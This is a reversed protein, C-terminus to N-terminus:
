SVRPLSFSPQRTRGFAAVLLVLCRCHHGRLYLVVAVRYVWLHLWLHYKPMPFPPFSQLVQPCIQYAAVWPFSHGPLVDNELPLPAHVSESQTLGWSLHQYKRASPM